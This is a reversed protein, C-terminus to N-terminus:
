RLLERAVHAAQWQQEAEESRAASRAAAASWAAASRAWAASRHEECPCAAWARAAAYAAECAERDEPRCRPLSREGLDCALRVLTVQDLGGWRLVRRVPSWCAAWDPVDLEAPPMIALAEAHGLYSALAVRHPDVEGRRLRDALTRTGRRDALRAAADSM